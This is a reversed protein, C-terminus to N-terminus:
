WFPNENVDQSEQEFPLTIFDSRKFLYPLGIFTKGAEEFPLYRMTTEAKEIKMEERLVKAIYSKTIQNNNNFFRYKLDTPTAHFSQIKDSELQRDEDRLFVEQICMALEKHLTSYSEEVVKELFETRIEEQTFVMRSKTYDIEPLDLLYALLCPIEKSIQQEIQPNVKDIVPVKRVWFRIEEEDIRMFDTERNTCIVVKGFFPLSYQSIFKQNVTISKQTAIAKLKEISAAKDLTTEDIGIINKTAYIHNFDSTLDNPAILVYNDGFIMQLMNLFTTKGTQREKSTLVLVPLAQDPREYLVKLYKYGLEIQDNFIHKMLTHIVPMDEPKNKGNPKHPFESYLNYFSQHTPSYTINDPVITFDDFAPIKYLIAKGHDDKLTDKKWVKIKKEIIGYRNPKKFIKFYDTGVRIYPIDKKLKYLLVYNLAAEYSNSFLEITFLEFLTVEEQEVFPSKPHQNLNHTIRKTTNNFDLLYTNKDNSQKKLYEVQNSNIIMYPEPKKGAAYKKNIDQILEIFDVNFNFWDVPNSYAKGSYKEQPKLFKYGSM